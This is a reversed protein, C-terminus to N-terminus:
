PVIFTKGTHPCKVSSGPAFGEVSVPGAYAAYPSTVLGKKGKIPTAVPFKAAITAAPKVATDWPRPESTAPRQTYTASNASPQVAVENPSPQQETVESPIQGDPATYPPISQDTSYFNDDQSACGIFFFASVFLLFFSKM